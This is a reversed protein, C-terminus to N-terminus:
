YEANINIDNDRFARLLAYILGRSNRGTNQAWEYQEKLSKYLEPSCKDLSYYSDMVLILELIAQEFSQDTNVRDLCANLFNKRVRLSQDEYASMDGVRRLYDCGGDVAISGCSCTQYDHRHKSFPTDCCKLCKVQNSIIQTEKTM